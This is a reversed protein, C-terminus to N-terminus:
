EKGKKDVLYIGLYYFSGKYLIDSPAVPWIPLMSVIIRDARNFAM